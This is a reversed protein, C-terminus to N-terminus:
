CRPSERVMDNTLRRAAVDLGINEAHSLDRLRAFADEASVGARSSLMGIARAATARRALVDKLKGALSQAQPLGQTDIDPM